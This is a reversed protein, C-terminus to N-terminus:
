SPFSARLASYRMSGSSINDATLAPEGHPTIESATQQELMLFEQNETDIMSQSDPEFQSFGGGTGDRLRSRGKIAAPGKRITASKPQDFPNSQDETLHFDYKLTTGEPIQQKIDEDSQLTLDSELPLRGVESKSSTFPPYEQKLGSSTMFHHKKNGSVSAAENQNLGSKDLMQAFM